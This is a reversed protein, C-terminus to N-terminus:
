APSPYGKHFATPVPLTQSGPCPLACTTPFTQPGLNAAGMLLGQTLLLHGRVCGRLRLYGPGDLNEAVPSAKALLAM